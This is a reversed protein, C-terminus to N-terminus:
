RELGAGIVHGISLEHGSQAPAIAIGVGRDIVTQKGLTTTVSGVVVGESLGHSINRGSIGLQRELARAVDAHRLKAWAEPKFGIGDSQRVGYGKSVLYAARTELESKALSSGVRDGNRVQGLRALEVDQPLLRDITMDVRKFHPRGQQAEAVRDLPVVNESQKAVDGGARKEAWHTRMVDQSKQLTDLRAKLDDAFRVGDNTRTALGLSELQAVRARVLTGVTDHRTLESKALVGENGRALATLRIDIDTWRNATSRAFLGREADSRSIDGLVAQAQEQARGRIGHSVYARPIVLDKGNARRGRMMVHTHPQDTDYHNVAVWELNPGKLDLSVKEMVDKVYSDLDDIKDGNEASIILRFHHRDQEWGAVQTEVEDVSPQGDHNYFSSEVGDQGAGDRALYSVHQALAKGPNAVGSPGLHRGIFVKVMVRQNAPVSFSVGGSKASAGGGGSQAGRGFLGSNSLRKALSSRVSGPDTRGSKPMDPSVRESPSRLRTAIQDRVAGSSAGDSGHRSTKQSRAM